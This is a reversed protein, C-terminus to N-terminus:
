GVVGGDGHDLWALRDLLAGGTTSEDVVVAGGGSCGSWYRGVWWGSRDAEVRGFGVVVLARAPEWGGRRTSSVKLAPEYLGGFGCVPCTHLDDRVTWRGIGDGPVQVEVPRSSEGIQAARTHSDIIIPGNGALAHSVSRTESYAKTDYSAVWHDPYEFLTTLVVEEAVGPRVHEDLALEAIAKAEDLEMRVHECIREAAGGAAARVRCHAAPRAEMEDQDVQGIHGACLGASPRLTRAADRGLHLARYERRM